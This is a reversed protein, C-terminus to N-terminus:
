THPRSTRDDSAFFVVGAPSSGRVQLFDLQPGLDRALRLVTALLWDPRDLRGAAASNGFHRKLERAVPAGLQQAAWLLPASDGAMAALPQGPQKELADFAAREDVRQLRTLALMLRQLAAVSAARDSSAFQLGATPDASPAAAAAPAGPAGAAAAPVVAPPWGCETLRADIRAGLAERLRDRSSALRRALEARCGRLSPPLPAAASGGDDAEAAAAAAASAEEREALAVCQAAAVGYTEAAQSALRVAGETDQAARNTANLQKPQENLQQM